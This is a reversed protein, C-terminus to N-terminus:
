RRRWLAALALEAVADALYVPPITKRAVHWVEVAALSVAAAPALFAVESPVNRKRSALLMQAGMCSVLLGVTQVLWLDTKPGTVRLFSRMHLLPWIGTGVYYIGQIGALTKHNM